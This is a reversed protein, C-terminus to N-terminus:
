LATRYEPCLFKWLELSLSYSKLEADPLREYGPTMEDSINLSIFNATTGKRVSVTSIRVQVNQTM